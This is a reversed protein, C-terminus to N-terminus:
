CGNGCGEAEAVVCGEEREGGEHLQWNCVRLDGVERLQMFLPVVESDDRHGCVELHYEVLSGLLGDEYFEEVVFDFLHGTDFEFQLVRFLVCEFNGVARVVVPAIDPFKVPGEEIVFFGDAM